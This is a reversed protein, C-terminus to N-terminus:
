QATGGEEGDDMLLRDLRVDLAKTMALLTSRTDEGAPDDNYADFAFLVDQLAQQVLYRRVETRADSLNLNELHRVAMHSDDFAPAPTATTAKATKKKKTGTNM